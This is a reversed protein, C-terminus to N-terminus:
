KILLMKQTGSHTNTKLQLYLIGSTNLEDSNIQLQNLGANFDDKMTYVVRGTYDSIIIEAMQAKPLSFSVTTESNFPNPVNQHLEFLSIDDSHTRFFLEFEEIYLSENLYIESNFGSNLEFVKNTSGTSQAKIEMTFLVANPIIEVAELANWSINLGNEHQYMNNM